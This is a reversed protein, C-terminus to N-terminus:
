IDFVLESEALRHGSADAAVGSKYAIFDTVRVGIAQSLPDSSIM